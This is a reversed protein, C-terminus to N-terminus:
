TVDFIPPIDVSLANADDLLKFLHKLTHLGVVFGNSISCHAIHLEADQDFIDNQIVQFSIVSLMAFLTKFLKLLININKQLNM